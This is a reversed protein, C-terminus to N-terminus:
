SKISFLELLVAKSISPAMVTEYYHSWKLSRNKPSIIKIIVMQSLLYPLYM